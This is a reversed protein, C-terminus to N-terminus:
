LMEEAAGNPKPITLRFHTRGNKRTWALQGGHEVAVRQALALGLGVGEPKSTVFPEFLTEAVAPPPGPGTDSVDIVFSHNESSAGLSIEGGPGAAELANLALNLIAARLGGEDAVVKLPDPGRQHCLRVKAHQCSPSVLLAVDGLLRELEFTERPQLETRGLSLLRKMQEETVTLQRLAIDLSQDGPPPPYRKAHLQVNMRAGTLSNRLQHALGAALQALLRTRESQRIAQQMQKLQSAMSNISRALQQVEDGQQGPDFGDFDGAAIKAVRHQLNHIRRSIRHAIWGTVAAMLGLTGLGVALPPAVADWRAQRWSTEPYLVLLASERLDGPARLPVAFYRTGELLLTASESLSDLRDVPGAALVAPPVGKLKPLTADTVRGDETYVAFHAGSLGRMKALVGETYPFNSHGLTETVGNLRDIIQRESRRAALTAATVAVTAVALGQIAVLPLLIQNRISWLMTRKPGFASASIGDHVSRM